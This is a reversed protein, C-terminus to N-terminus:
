TSRVTRLVEAVEGADEILRRLSDAFHDLGDPELGLAVADDVPQGATLARADRKRRREDAARLQEHEVLRGDAEVRHQAAVEPLHEAREGGVPRRQEDRAVHHVLGVVAVLESSMRSPRRSAVPVGSSQAAARAGVVEPSAKRRRISSSRRTLGRAVSARGRDPDEGLQAAVGPRDREQHDHGHTSTVSRLYMNMSLGPTNSRIPTGSSPRKGNM